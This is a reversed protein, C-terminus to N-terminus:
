PQEAQSDTNWVDEPAPLDESETRVIKSATM